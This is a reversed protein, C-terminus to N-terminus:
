VSPRDFCPQLAVLFVGDQKARYTKLSIALSTRFAEKTKKPYTTEIDSQYWTSDQGYLQNQQQGNQCQGHM